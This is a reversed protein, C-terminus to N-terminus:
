STSVERGKYVQKIVQIDTGGTVRLTAEGDGRAVTIQYGTIHQAQWKELAQAYAEPTISITDRDVHEPVVLKYLAITAACAVILSLIALSAIAANKRDNNTLM